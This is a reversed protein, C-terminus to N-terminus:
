NHPPADLIMHPATHIYVVQLGLHSLYEQDNDLREVIGDAQKRFLTFHLVSLGLKKSIKGKLKGLTTNEAFVYQKLVLKENNFVSIETPRKISSTVIASNTEKQGYKNLLYHWITRKPKTTNGQKVKSIFYLEYNNREEPSYETGNIKTITRVRGMIQMLCHDYGNQSDTQDFLPNGDLKLAELHPFQEEFTDLFSWDSDISNHSLDLVRLSTLTGELGTIQNDSINIARLSSGTLIIRGGLRNFSLDISEITSTEPFQVFRNDSFDVYYLNPFCISLTSLNCAELDNSPIILRAIQNDGAIEVIHFRNGALRLTKLTQLKDCVKVVQMWDSILNHGLDLDTVSKLLRGVLNIEFENNVLMNDLSVVELSSFNAQRRILEDFGYKEVKKTGIMIQEEEEARGIQDLEDYKYELASSFSRGKVVLVRDKGLRILDDAIGEQPLKIFSGTKEDGKTNFYRYLQGKYELSGDNKGRVLDDWEVGLADNRPWPKIPGIYRVTGMHQKGDVGILCVRRGIHCGAQKLEDYQDRAAPM